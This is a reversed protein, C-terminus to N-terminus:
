QPYIICKNCVPHSLSLLLTGALKSSDSSCNLVGSIDCRTICIHSGNVHCCHKSAQPSLTSLFNPLLWLPHGFFLYFSSSSYLSLSCAWSPSSGPSTGDILGPLASSCLGLLLTYLPWSSTIPHNTTIPIHMESHLPWPLLSLLVLFM